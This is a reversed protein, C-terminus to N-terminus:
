GGSLVRAWRSRSDPDRARPQVMGHVLDHELRHRERPARPRRDVGEEEAHVVVVGVGDRVPVEPRVRREGSTLEAGVEGTDVTPAHVVAELYRAKRLMRVTPELGDGIHSAADDIVGVGKARRRPEPGAVRLPEGRSAADHM